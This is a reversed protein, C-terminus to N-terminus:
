RDILGNGGSYVIGTNVELTRVSVCLNNKNWKNYILKLRM